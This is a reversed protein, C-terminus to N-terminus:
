INWVDTTVSTTKEEVISENIVRTTLDVYGLRKIWVEKVSSKVKSGERM